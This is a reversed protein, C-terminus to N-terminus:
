KSKIGNEGWNPRQPCNLGERDTFVTNIAFNAEGGLVGGGGTIIQSTTPEQAFRRMTFARKSM